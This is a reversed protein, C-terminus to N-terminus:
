ITACYISQEFDIIIAIVPDITYGDANIPLVASLEFQIDKQMLVMAFVEIIFVFKTKFLLCFFFLFSMLSSFTCYSQILFITGNNVLM